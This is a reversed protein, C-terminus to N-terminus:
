SGDDVNSPVALEQLVDDFFEKARDPPLDTFVVVISKYIADDGDEPQAGLFLRQYGRVVDPINPVSCGDAHEPALWLSKREWAGPVFPCV